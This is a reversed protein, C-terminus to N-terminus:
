HFALLLCSCAFSKYALINRTGSLIANTSTPFFVSIPCLPPPTFFTLLAWLFYLCSFHPSLPVHPPIATQFPALAMLVGCIHREGSLSPFPTVLPCSCVLVGVFVCVSVSASRVEGDDGDLPYTPVM